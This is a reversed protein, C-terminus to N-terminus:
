FTCMRVTFEYYTIQINAREASLWEAKTVPCPFSRRIHLSVVSRFVPLHDHGTQDAAVIMQQASLLLFM